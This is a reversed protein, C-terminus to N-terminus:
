PMTFYTAVGDPTDSALLYRYFNFLSDRLLEARAVSARLRPSAHPTRRAPTVSPLPPPLPIPHPALLLPAVVPLPLPPLPTMRWLM